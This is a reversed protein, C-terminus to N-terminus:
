RCAAPARVVKVAVWTRRGAAQALGDEFDAAFDVSRVMEEIIAEHPSAEGPPTSGADENVEVSYWLLVGQGGGGGPGVRTERLQALAAKPTDGGVLQAFFTHRVFAEAITGIVPLPLLTRLLAPAADVLPPLACLTYVTYQRLLTSIPINPEIPCDPHSLPAQSDANALYIASASLAGASLGLGLGVRRRLNIKPSKANTSQIRRSSLILNRRLM